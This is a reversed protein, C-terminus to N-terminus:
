KDSSDPNTHGAMGEWINGFGCSNPYNFNGFLIFAIKFIRKIKKEYITKRWGLRGWLQIRVNKNYLVFYQSFGMMAM